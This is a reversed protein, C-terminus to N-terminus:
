SLLIFLIFSSSCFCIKIVLLHHQHKTARFWFFSHCDQVANVLIHFRRALFISIPNDIRKKSQRIDDKKGRRFGHWLMNKVLYHSLRSLRSFPESAEKLM